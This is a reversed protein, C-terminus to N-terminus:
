EPLDPETHRPCKFGENLESPFFLTHENDILIQGKISQGGKQMQNELINRVAYKFVLPYKLVM